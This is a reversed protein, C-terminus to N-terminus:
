CLSVPPRPPRSGPTSVSVQLLRWVKQDHKVQFQIIALVILFNLVNAVLVILYYCTNLGVGKLNTKISDAEM